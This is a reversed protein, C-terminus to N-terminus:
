MGDRWSRSGSDIHRDKIANYSNVFNGKEYLQQMEDGSEANIEPMASLMMFFSLAGSIVRKIKKNM